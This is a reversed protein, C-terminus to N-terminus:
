LRRMCRSMRDSSSRVLESPYLMTLGSTKVMAEEGMHTRSCHRRREKCYWHRGDVRLCRQKRATYMCCAACAALDCVTPRFTLPITSAAPAPPLLPFLMRLYQSKM